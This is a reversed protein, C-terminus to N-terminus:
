EGKGVYKTWGRNPLAGHESKRKPFLGEGTRRQGFSLAAGCEECAMEYYKNGDINRVRFRTDASSCAGCQADADLIEQVSAIEEFLSKVNQGEVEVVLRGNRSKFHAKM